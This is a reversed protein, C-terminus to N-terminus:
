QLSDQLRLYLDLDGAVLDNLYYTRNNSETSVPTLYCSRVISDLLIFEGSTEEEM